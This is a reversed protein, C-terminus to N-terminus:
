LQSRSGYILQRATAETAGTTQAPTYYLPPYQSVYGAQERETQTAPVRLNEAIYRLYRFHGFEDAGRALPVVVNYATSLLLFLGILAFLRGHRFIFSTKCASINTLM